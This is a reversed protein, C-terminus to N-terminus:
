AGFDERWTVGQKVIRAPSGAAIVNRPILGTVISRTGIVSDSGIAAGKLIVSEAGIWVHEDVFIDKASNIRNGTEADFIGHMDSSSILVRPGCLLNDRITINSPEHAMIELKYTCKCNKGISISSDDNCFISLNNLLSGRGIKVNCNSGVNISLNILRSGEEILIYNESGRFNVSVEVSAENILINDGVNWDM